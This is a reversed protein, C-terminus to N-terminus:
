GGAAMKLQRLDLLRDYHADVRLIEDPFPLEPHFEECRGKFEMKEKANRAKQEEVNAALKSYCERMSELPKMFVYVAKMDADAAGLAGAFVIAFIM